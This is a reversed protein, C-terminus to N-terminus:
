ASVPRPAIRPGELQRGAQPVDVGIPERWDGNLMSGVVDRMTRRARGLDHERELLEGWWEDFAAPVQVAAPSTLLQEGHALGLEWAALSLLCGTREDLGGWEGARLSNDGRELARGIASRTEPDLRELAHALDSEHSSM